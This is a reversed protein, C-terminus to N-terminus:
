RTHNYESKFICIFQNDEEEDEGKEDRMPFNAMLGSMGLGGLKQQKKCSRGSINRRDGFRKMM